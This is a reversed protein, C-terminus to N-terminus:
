IWGHGLGETGASGRLFSGLAPDRPPPSRGSSSRVLGRGHGRTRSRRERASNSKRPLVNTLSRNGRSQGTGGSTPYQEPQSLAPSPVPTASFLSGGDLPVGSERGQRLTYVSRSNALTRIGDFPGPPGRVAGTDVGFERLMAEHERVVAQDRHSALVGAVDIGARAMEPRARANRATFPAWFEEGLLTPLLHPRLPYRTRAAEGLCWFIDRAITRLASEERGRAGAHAHGPGLAQLRRARDVFGAAAHDIQSALGLTWAGTAPSRVRELREFGGDLYKIRVRRVAGGVPIGVSDAYTAHGRAALWGRVNDKAYAPCLLSAGAARRAAFGRDVLASLGCVAYPVHALTAHIEAFLEQLQDPSLYTRSWQDRPDGEQRRRRPSSRQTRSSTSTSTSTSRTTESPNLSPSRARMPQISVLGSPDYEVTAQHHHPLRKVYTVPAGEQTNSYPIGFFEPCTPKAPKKPLCNFCSTILSWTSNSTKTNPM